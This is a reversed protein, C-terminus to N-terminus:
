RSTKRIRGGIRGKNEFFFNSSTASIEVSSSLELYQVGNKKGLLAFDFVAQKNIKLFEEKSMKSSEVVDLTRIAKLIRKTVSLKQSTM